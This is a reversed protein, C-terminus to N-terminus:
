ILSPNAISHLASAKHADEGVEEITPLRTAAISLRFGTGQIIRGIASAINPLPLKIRLM